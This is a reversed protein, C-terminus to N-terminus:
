IIVLEAGEDGSTIDHPRKHVPLFAAEQGEAAPVSDEERSFEDGDTLPSTM